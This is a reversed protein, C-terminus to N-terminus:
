SLLIKTQFIEESKSSFNWFFSKEKRALTRFLSKVTRLISEFTRLICTRPLKKLCFSVAVASKDFFVLECHGLAVIQYNRFSVPLFYFISGHIFGVRTLV